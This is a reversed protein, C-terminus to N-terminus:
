IYIYIYICMYVDVLIVSPVNDKLINLKKRNIKKLRREKEKRKEHAIGDREIISMSRPLNQHLAKLDTILSLFSFFSALMSSNEQVGGCFKKKKFEIHAHFLTFLLYASHPCPTNIKTLGVLICCIIQISPNIISM